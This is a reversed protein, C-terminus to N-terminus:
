AGLRREYAELAPTDFCCFLVEELAPAAALGERVTRVAIDTAAELPYGYVGTSIAPLALTRVRQEAALALVSRYCSALAEAEGAGGGRWIPGVAHAIWTAPLRFGRTLRAEGTPCGGFRDLVRQLDPGAARHIAGDVGGGARLWENAANAIMEVDLTTIDARLARLLASSETM